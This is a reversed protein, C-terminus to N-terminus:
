ARQVQYDGAEDVAAAIAQDDIPADSEVQMSADSLSVTVNDVGAVQSVEDTIHAVCHECTMGTLNYKTIM